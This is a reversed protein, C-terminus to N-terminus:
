AHKDGKQRELEALKRRHAAMRTYPAASHLLMGLTPVILVAKLLPHWGFAFACATLALLIALIIAGIIADRRLAAIRARHQSIQRDIDM